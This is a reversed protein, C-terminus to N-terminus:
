GLITLAVLVVVLGALNAVLMFLSLAMLTRPEFM